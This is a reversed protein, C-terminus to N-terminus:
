IRQVLAATDAPAAQAVEASATATRGASPAPRSVPAGKSPPLATLPTPAVPTRAPGSSAQRSQPGKTDRAEPRKSAAADNKIFRGTLVVEPPQQSARQQGARAAAVAVPKQTAAFLRMLGYGLLPVAATVLMVAGAALYKLNPANAPRQNAATSRHAGTGSSATATAARPEVATSAAVAFLGGCHPCQVQQTTAFPPSTLIQSCHPCAFQQEM